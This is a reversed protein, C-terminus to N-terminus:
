GRGAGVPLRLRPGFAAGLGGAKYSCSTLGQISTLVLKLARM